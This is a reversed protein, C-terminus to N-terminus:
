NFANLHVKIVNLAHVGDVHPRCETLHLFMVSLKVNLCAYFFLNFLYTWRM